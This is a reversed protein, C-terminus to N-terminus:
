GPSPARSPRWRALPESDQFSPSPSPTRPPGYSSSAASAARRARHVTKHHGRPPRESGGARPLRRTSAGRSGRSSLAGLPPKSLADVDLDASSTSESDADSLPTVRSSASPLSSFPTESGLSTSTCDRPATTSPRAPPARSALTFNAWHQMDKYMSGLLELHLVRTRQPAHPCPTFSLRVAREDDGFKTTRHPWDDIHDTKCDHEKKDLRQNWTSVDYLNAWAFHRPPRGEEWGSDCLGLGIHISESLSSSRFLM